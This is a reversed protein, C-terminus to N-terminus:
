FEELLFNVCFQVLSMYTSLILTLTSQIWSDASNECGAFAKWRRRWPNPWAQGTGNEQLAHQNRWRLQSREINWRRKPNYTVTKKEWQALNATKKMNVCILCHQWIFGSVVTPLLPYLSFVAYVESGLQRPILYQWKQTFYKPIIIEICSKQREHTTYLRIDLSWRTGTWCSLHGKSALKMHSNVQCHETM